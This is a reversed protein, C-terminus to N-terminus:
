GPEESEQSKRVKSREFDIQHELYSLEGMARELAVGFVKFESEERSELTRRLRWVQEQWWHGYIRNIAGSAVWGCSLAQMGKLRLPTVEIGKVAIEHPNTAWFPGDVEGLFFDGFRADCSSCHNMLYSSESTRSYDRRLGPAFRRMAREMEASISRINYPMLIWLPEALPANPSIGPPVQDMDLWREVLLGVVPSLEGCRWCRNKSTIVYFPDWALLDPAPGTDGQQEHDPVEDPEM